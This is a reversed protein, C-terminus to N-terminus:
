SCLTLVFAVINIAEALAEVWYPIPIVVEMNEKVVATLLVRSSTVFTQLYDCSFEEM